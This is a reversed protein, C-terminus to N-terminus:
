RMSTSERMPFFTGSHRWCSHEFAAANPASRNCITASLSSYSSRSSSTRANTLPTDRAVCTHTFRIGIPKACSPLPGDPPLPIAAALPSSLAGDRRTSVHVLVMRPWKHITAWRRQSSSPWLQQDDADDIVRGADEIAISTNFPTRVKGNGLHPPGFM